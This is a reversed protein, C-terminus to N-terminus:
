TRWIKILNFILRFGLLVIPGSPSVGSIKLSPPGTKATLYVSVKVLIQFSSITEDSQDRDSITRTQLFSYFDCSDTESFQHRFCKCWYYKSTQSSSKFLLSSFIMSTESSSTPTHALCECHPPSQFPCLKRRGVVTINRLRLTNGLEASRSTKQCHIM